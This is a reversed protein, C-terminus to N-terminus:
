MYLKLIHKANCIKISMVSQKKRLEHKAIPVNGTNRQKLELINIQAGANQARILARREAKTMDGGRKKDIKQEFIVESINQGFQM